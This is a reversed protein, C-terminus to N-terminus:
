KILPDFKAHPASEIRDRQRNAAPEAGIRQPKRPIEARRNLVRAGRREDCSDRGPMASARLGVRRPSHVRAAAPGYDLAFSHRCGSRLASNGPEGAWVFWYVFV